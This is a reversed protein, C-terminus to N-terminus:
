RTGTRAYIVRIATQTMGDRSSNVLDPPRGITPEHSGRARRGFAGSTAAWFRKVRFSPMSRGQGPLTTIQFFGVADDGGQCRRTHRVSALPTVPARKGGNRPLKVM